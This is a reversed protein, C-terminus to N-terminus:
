RQSRASPTGTATPPASRDWYTDASTAELASSAARLRLKFWRSVKAQHVRALWDRAVYELTGPQAHGEDALRAAEARAARAARDSRRTESPDLGAALQRRVESRKERAQKLTTDPYTGLSLMGEKGAFVYRMRWWGAGTPRADVYLGAGDNVRRAKGSTVAAKIAAQVGKDSLLDSGAM